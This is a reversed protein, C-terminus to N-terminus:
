QSIETAEVMEIGPPPTFRFRSDAIALNDKEDSFIFETTAGDTEEIVIRRLRSDPTVELLVESVRDEMGKPIGRLVVDGAQVPEVDAALSLGAFEKQLRSKGLLYRVPSRLDDLKKVSAKRVQREGPVYFWVTRGDSLFLKPRPERYDWRMKGPKKLELTGSEMRTAGAGRYTESFQMQLSQLNNYHRDVAAAIKSIDTQAGAMACLVVTVAILRQVNM